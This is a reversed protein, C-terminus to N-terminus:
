TCDAWTKTGGEPLRRGHIIIRRNVKTYCSFTPVLTKTTLEVRDGPFLGGTFCFRMGAGTELRFNSRAGSAANVHGYVVYPADSVVDLCAATNAQGGPLPLLTQAAAPLCLGCWTLVLGFLLRTTIM